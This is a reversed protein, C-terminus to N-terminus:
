DIKSRESDSQVRKNSYHNTIMDLSAHGVWAAVVEIRVGKILCNNIFTKRGVKSSILSYKPATPISKGIPILSSAVHENLLPILSCIDKVEKSFNGVHQPNYDYSSAQMRAMIQSAKASFPVEVPRKTKSALFQLYGNQVNAETFNLDVHRLGTYCSLLFLDRIYQQRSNQLDLNELETLEAPELNIVPKDQIAAGAKVDALFRTDIDHEKAFFKIVAKLRTIVEGISSNRMGGKSLTDRLSTLTNATVENILLTPYHQKILNKLVLYSKQTNTALPEERKATAYEGVLTMLLKRKKGSVMEIHAALEEKKAALEAELKTIAARIDQEVGKSFSDLKVSNNDLVAVQDMLVAYAASVNAKSPELQRKKVRDLAEEIRSRVLEIQKNLELANALKQKVKGSAEDFDKALVKAKAAREFHEKNHTLRVIVTKEQKKGKLYYSFTAM